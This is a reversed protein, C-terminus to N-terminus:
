LDCPRLVNLVINGMIYCRARLSLKLYTCSFVTYM